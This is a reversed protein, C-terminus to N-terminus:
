KARLGKTLLPRYHEYDPTKLGPVKGMEDYLRLQIAEKYFPNAEFEACEAANFPGGQVELSQVSAPSLEAFYKEDTACLYRKAPVHLRVPETVAPIFWEALAEAGVEEHMGDIGHDAIDEELGHILHGYDHLFAAAIMLDDAGDEEAFHATQFCHERINVREGYELGGNQIYDQFIKDIINM